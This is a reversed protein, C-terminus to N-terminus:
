LNVIVINSLIISTTGHNFIDMIVIINYINLTALMNLIDLIDVVIYFKVINRFGHNNFNTHNMIM